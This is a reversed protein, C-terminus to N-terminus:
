RWVSTGENDRAPRKRWLLLMWADIPPPFECVLERRASCGASGAAPGASPALTADADDEDEDNAGCGGDCGAGAVEDADADEAFAVKEGRLLM